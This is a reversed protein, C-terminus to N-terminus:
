QPVGNRWVGPTTACAADALAGDPATKCWRRRTEFTEPIGGLAAIQTLTLDQIQNPMAPWYRMAYDVRWIMDTPAPYPAVRYAEMLAKLSEQTPWLAEATLSYTLRQWSRGEHPARLAAQRAAESALAWEGAEGAKQSLAIYYDPARGKPPTEPLSAGPTDSYWFTVLAAISGLFVLALSISRRM